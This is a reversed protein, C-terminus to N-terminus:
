LMNYPDVDLQYEVNGPVKTLTLVDRLVQHLAGASVSQIQFHFRFYNKLRFVPCEAPGLVRVAAGGPNQAAYRKQANDFAASLKEAFEQAIEQKQSRIILRAMRQYPPYGHEHRFALEQKAFSIYDHEVALAIAPHEPNFTQVLVQGPHDGRGTRGAVQALLQFTRESARFDPMHLGVDANVVGVLTVNPFDLGKAIMQTGMLIQIRGERFADLVRRHSGPKQMTDSDMRQVVYGSFKSEIEAQLKQTGVGQFRIATQKCMPCFALPSQAFGCYHCLMASRDRHYTMALDCNACTAVYGCSPCHIHTNFGRRNLLLIVQGGSKLAFHIAMELRPSLSHQRIRPGDHRMDILDVKPMERELVRSPLSLLKYQGREANHWSELSPTASGLLIPINELRARMVAVDRGHYRPTSEQKFSSEHEEDIVILGLKKAPAFVASRAGVVVQVQGAAVRRWHGGREADGLHSHLVAVEGCRGRFREITQPTLSIEPVMVLAEKGQRVVEEIARLYIETKGSGTVGHLLFPQFGGARVAAEIPRWAQEQDANLVIPAAPPEPKAPPAAFRDVKQTSRRAYGKQVLAGIPGTGCGAQRALQRMEIPANILRLQTLAATQKPSLPELEAPLEAEPVPELVITQRIGSQDRAGAPVVGHLVTGWSCLYYDAMWRTLRMLTETVLSESDLVALIEKTAYTPTESHVRVCYGSAARDGRGFPAEVRRGVGIAPRLEPPVAYTFAQDMPRDFVIDAYCIETAPSQPKVGKL